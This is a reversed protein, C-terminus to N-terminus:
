EYFFGSEMIDRIEAAEETFGALDLEADKVLLYGPLTSVQRIQCLPRGCHSNDEDVPIMFQHYLRARNKLHAFSGAGGVSSGRPQMARVANAIGNGASSIAGAYQGSVIGSITGVVANFGSQAAGLYDKMVQSLQIPVGIQSEAMDTCVGDILVRARGQGTILDFTILAQVQTANSTLTTDLELNGFPPLDLNVRTYPATNLYNGRTLTLPHKILDLTVAYQMYPPDNSIIKHSCPISWDWIHLSDLETGGISEYLVPLWICSKIYSLPDILSKQLALTADATDFGSGSLLTDDLLEDVLARLGSQRMASYVVSGYMHSDNPQQSTVYGVVFVGASLDIDDSGVTHIWPSTGITVDTQCTMKTPYYDDVINGDSAASSRLIYLSADGIQQKFTALTDCSLDAAWLRHDTWTWNNIFYYRGYEQIYAYNWQPASALGRELIIVPNRISSDSKLICSIVEGTGTPRATSNSKKAFTYFNVNFAM